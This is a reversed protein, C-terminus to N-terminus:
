AQEAPLLLLLYVLKLCWWTFNEVIDATNLVKRYSWCEAFRARHSPLEILGWKQFSDPFGVEVGKWAQGQLMGSLLQEQESHKGQLLAVCLFLPTSGAGLVSCLSKRMRSFCSIWLGRLHRIKKYSAAKRGFVPLSPMWHPCFLQLFSCESLYKM